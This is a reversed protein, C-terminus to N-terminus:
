INSIHHIGGGSEALRLCRKFSITHASDDVGFVYYYFYYFLLSHAVWVTETKLFVTLPDFFLFLFLAINSCRFEGDICRFLLLLLLLLFFDFSWGWGCGDM